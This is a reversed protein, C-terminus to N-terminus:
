LLLGRLLLLLLRQLALVQLDVLAPPWPGSRASV